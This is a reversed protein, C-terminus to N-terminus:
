TIRVCNQKGPLLQQIDLQWLTRATVRKPARVSGLTSGGSGGGNQLTNLIQISRTPRAISVFSFEADGPRTRPSQTPNRHRM